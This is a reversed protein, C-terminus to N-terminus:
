LSYKAKILVSTRKMIGWLLRVAAAHLRRATVHSMSLNGKLVVSAAIM